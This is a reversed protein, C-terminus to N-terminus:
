GGGGGKISIILIREVTTKLQGQLCGSLIFTCEFGIYPVTRHRKDGCNIVNLPWIGYYMYMNQGTLQIVWSLLILGWNQM